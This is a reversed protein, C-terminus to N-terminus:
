RRDREHWQHGLPNSQGDQRRNLEPLRPDIQQYPVGGRVPPSLLSDRREYREAPSLSERPSGSREMPLADAALALPSMLLMPVLYWQM